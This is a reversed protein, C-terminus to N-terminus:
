NATEVPWEDEIDLLTTLLATPDIPKVFCNRFGEVRTRHSATENRNGMLALLVPRRQSPLVRIARALAHGNMDEMALDILVAHPNRTRVESLAEVAGGAVSAHFGALRLQVAVSEAAQRDDNVVLVSLRHANSPETPM